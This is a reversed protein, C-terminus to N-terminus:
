GLQMNFQNTQTALEQVHGSLTLTNQNEKLESILSGKYDQISLRDKQIQLTLKNGIKVAGSSTGALLPIQANEISVKGEQLTLTYKGPTYKGPQKWTVQTNMNKYGDMQGDLTLQNDKWSLVGSFGDIQAEGGTQLNLDQSPSKLEHKSTEIKINASTLSISYEPLQLESQININKLTYPKESDTGEKNNKSDRGDPAPSGFLAEKARAFLGQDSPSSPSTDKTNSTPSSGSIDKPNVIEHGTIQTMHEQFGWLGLALLAIAISGTLILWGYLNKRSNTEEDTPQSAPKFFSKTEKIKTVDIYDAM